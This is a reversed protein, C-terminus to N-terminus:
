YSICLPYIRDVARISEVDAAIGAQNLRQILEEAGRIM